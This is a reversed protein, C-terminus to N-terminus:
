KGKAKTNQLVALVPLPIEEEKWARSKENSIKLVAQKKLSIKRELDQKQTEYAILDQEQREKEQVLTKIANEQSSLTLQLSLIQADKQKNQTQLKENKLQLFCICVGAMTFFLIKTMFGSNFITNM